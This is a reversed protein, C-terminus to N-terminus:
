DFHPVSSVTGRSQTPALDTSSIARHIRPSSRTGDVVVVLQAGDRILVGALRAAEVAHEADTVLLVSLQLVPWALLEPDLDLPAVLSGARKQAKQVGELTGMYIVPNTQDFSMAGPVPRRNRRMPAMQQQM